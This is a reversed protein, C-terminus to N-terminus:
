GNCIVVLFYDKINVIGNIDINVDKNIGINLLGLIDRNSIISSGDINEVYVLCFGLFFCM